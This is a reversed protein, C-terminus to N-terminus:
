KRKKSIIVGAAAIVAPVIAIAVGTNANKDGAPAPAATTAPAETTTAPAETTTEPAETTTEPAETTTEEEEFLDTGGINSLKNVKIKLFNDTKYTDLNLIADKSTTGDSSIHDLETVKLTRGQLAKPIYLEITLDGKPQVSTGNDNLKINYFFGNTSIDYTFEITGNNLASDTSVVRVGAGSQSDVAKLQQKETEQSVNGGPITAQDPVEITISSLYIKDIYSMRWVGPVVEVWSSNDTALSWMNDGFSNVLFSISDVNGSVTGTSAAVVTDWDFTASVGGLNGTSYDLDLMVEQRLKNSTGGNVVLVMDYASYKGDAGSSVAWPNGSDGSDASGLVEIGGGSTNSPLIFNFKVKAGKSQGITDNAWKLLNITKDPDTGTAYTNELAEFSIVKNAEFYLTNSGLHDNKTSGNLTRQEGDFTKFMQQYGTDDSTSTMTFGVKFDVNTGNLKVYKGESNKAATKFPASIEIRTIQAFRRVDLEDSDIFLKKSNLGLTKFTYNKTTASITESVDTSEIKTVVEEGNEDTEKTFKGLIGTVTIKIQGDHEVKGGWIDESMEQFWIANFTYSNSTTTPLVANLDLGSRATLTESATFKLTNTQNVFSKVEKVADASVNVVALSTVTLAAAAVGALLKKMKM